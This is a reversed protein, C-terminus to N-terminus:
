EFIGIIGDMIKTSAASPGDWSWIDRIMEFMMMGTLALVLFSLVLFSITFGSHQAQPPGQMPMMMPGPGMAQHAAAGMAAAADTAVLTASQDDVVAETDLAIVQSGSSDSSEQDDLELMPTLLFDDDSSMDQEGSDGSVGDDGGLELPEELSLGSDTAAALNIGSDGIGSGLGGSSGGLVIDDDDFQQEQALKLKSSNMEKASSSGGILIDDDEGLSLGSESITLDSGAGLKGSGGGLKGSSGGLKGSSGGLKGSSGGGLKGSSGSSLKPTSGPKVDLTADSDGAVKFTGAGSDLDVMHLDSGSGSPSGVNPVLKLGSGSGSELDPNPVLKVDSDSGLGSGGLTLDSDQGLSGGSGGIVTSGKGAGGLLADTVLGADDQGEGGDTPLYFAMDGSGSRGGQEAKFRDVEDSKFKWGAGDKIAFIKRQDVLQMLEDSSIGLQAAAEDLTLLKPAM